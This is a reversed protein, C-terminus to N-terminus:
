LDGMKSDSSEVCVHVFIRTLFLQQLCTEDQKMNLCTSTYYEVSLLLETDTRCEHSSM